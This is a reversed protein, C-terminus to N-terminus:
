AHIAIAPQEASFPQNASTLLTALVARQKAGALVVPSGNRRVELPGLMEFEMARDLFSPYAEALATAISKRM